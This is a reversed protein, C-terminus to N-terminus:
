FKTLSYQALHTNLYRLLKESCKRLISGQFEPVTWSEIALIWQSMMMIINLECFELRLLSITSYRFPNINTVRTM